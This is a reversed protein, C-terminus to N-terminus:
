STGLTHAARSTRHKHAHSAGLVAVPASSPACCETKLFSREGRFTPERLVPGFSDQVRGHGGPGPVSYARLLVNTREGKCLLLSLGPTGLLIKDCGFKRLFHYPWSYLAQTGKAERLQIADPGLVLLAPGKLQCRAAAETRQVVVPFEGVEQWSSYISNEEMPVLGRKPSQVDTSGSSAEGTSKGFKVHQQYLIGDKVPTELPEM